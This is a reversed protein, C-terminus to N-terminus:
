LLVTEPHLVAAACTRGPSARARAAPLRLDAASHRRHGLGRHAHQGIGRPLAGIYAASHRDILLVHPWTNERPLLLESAYFAGIVCAAIALRAALGGLSEPMFFNSAMCRLFTLLAIAFSQQKLDELGNRLGIYLIVLGLAAWGAVTFVRGLEFRLLVFALIAPAWLHLRTWFANMRGERGLQWVHYHAALVPVVTLIRHSIPGTYGTTTFNALFLRGFVACFVLNGHGDLTTEILALALVAWAPAVLVDPLAIWMATMAMLSGVAAAERRAQNRFAFWLLAAACVAYSLWVYRPAFKDFHTFNAFFVGLISLVAVAWSPYRLEAPMGFLGLELLVVALLSCAVGGYEAPSLKTVLIVSLVTTAIAAGWRLYRIEVPPVDLKRLSMLYAIAVGIAVQIWGERSDPLGNYVVKAGIGMALAAYGQYRFESLGRRLGFELLVLGLAALASGMFRHPCEAAIMIAVLASATYSFLLGPSRLARNTYFIIAHLLAINSASHFTHGFQEYKGQDGLLTGLSIFFGALALRELLRERLQMGALFLIEAEIAVAANAWVGPAKAAFAAVSLISAIIVPAEYGGVSFRKEAPLPDGNEDRPPVIRWRIVASALYLAAAGFGFMYADSPAVKSWKNFSLLLFAMTNLPFIAVAFGSQIRRQVRMLDFTEFVLWYIFLLAQTSNLPSGSDGRSILTGYTAILGFLAMPYWNFRHALYLLSGALPLLAIAAMPTSPSLALAAFATFYAVGTAGQSGYRLTHGIMAAAVALLLLSGIIPDSIVRTAEVAYMAYATFYLSAWGAGILGRAFIKYTEKREVVIGAALLSLSVALGTTVRGAPGMQTFSYSLLLAIAIVVVLAGLKNFLNGGILAEWEQGSMQDRMRDALSPGQPVFVPPPPPEPLPAPIAPQPEPPLEPLVVPLPPPETPLPPPSAVVPQPEPQIVPEPQQLPAPAVIAGRALQQELQYIRAVLAGIQSADIREEELKRLKEELETFRGRIMVWRIFLVILVVFLLFEM